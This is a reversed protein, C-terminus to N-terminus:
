NASPSDKKAAEVFPDIPQNLIEDLKRNEKDYLLMKGNKYAPTLIEDEWEKPIQSINEKIRTQFLFVGPTEIDVQFMYNDDMIIMMFVTEKSGKGQRCAIATKIETWTYTKVGDETEVTFKDGSYSFVGPDNKIGEIKNLIYEKYEDSNPNMFKFKPSIVRYSLFIAVAFFFAVLVFLMTDLREWSTILIYLGIIWSVIALIIYNFISVPLIKKDETNNDSM